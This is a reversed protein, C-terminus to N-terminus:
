FNRIVEIVANSDCIKNTMMIKYTYDVGAVSARKYQINTWGCKTYFPVLNEKCLLVGLLGCNNIYRSAKQVLAKGYGKGLLMKEVCVNGIGLMKYNLSNIRLDVKTLTLYAVLNGDQTEALMHADEALINERIWEMQSDIGYPWYENKLEVIKKIDCNLIDSNFIIKWNIHNM